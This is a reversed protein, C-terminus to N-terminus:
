VPHKVKLIYYERKWKNADARATELQGELGRIRDDTGEGGSRLQDQLKQKQNELEQKDKKLRRGWGSLSKIGKELAGIRGQLRQIEEPRAQGKLAKDLETQIRTVAASLKEVQAKEQALEADKANLAQHAATLQTTATSLHETEQALKRTLNDKDQGLSELQQALERSGTEKESCRTELDRCYAIFEATLDVMANRRKSGQTRARRSHRSESAM